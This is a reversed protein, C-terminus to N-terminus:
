LKSGITGYAPTNKHDPVDLLPGLLHWGGDVHMTTGTTYASAPSLYYLVAASVEEVSGVRKAPTVKNASYHFLDEGGEYNDAGSSLV